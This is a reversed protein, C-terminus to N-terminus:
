KYYQEYWRPQRVYKAPNSTQATEEKRFSCGASEASCHKKDETLYPCPNEKLEFTCLMNVGGYM